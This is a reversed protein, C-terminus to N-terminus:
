EVTVSHDPMNGSPIYEVQAIADPDNSGTLLEISPIWPFALLL